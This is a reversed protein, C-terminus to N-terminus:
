QLGSLPFSEVDGAAAAKQAITESIDFVCRRM